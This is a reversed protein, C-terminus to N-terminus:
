YSFDAYIPLHDSFGEGLHRKKSDKKWRFVNGKSDLVGGERYVKFTGDVYELGTSDLLGKSIIM